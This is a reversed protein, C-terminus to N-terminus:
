VELKHLKMCMYCLRYEPLARELLQLYAIREKKPASLVAEVADDHTIARLGESTQSLTAKSHVPLYDVIEYLLEVPLDLLPATQSKSATLTLTNVQETTTVTAVSM